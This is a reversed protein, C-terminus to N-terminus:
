YAILVFGDGGEGVGTAGPASGGGGGGSIGNQGEPNESNGGAATTSYYSAGGAGGEPNQNSALSEGPQGPQGALSPHSNGSGGAGPTGFVAGQGGSATFTLRVNGETDLINVVTNQGNPNEADGGEGITVDISEGPALPIPGTIVTEGGGGGGGATAINSQSIPVGGAGGGGVLTLTVTSPENINVISSRTITATHSITQQNGDNLIVLQGDSNVTLDTNKLRIAQAYVVNFSNDFIKVNPTFLGSISQM